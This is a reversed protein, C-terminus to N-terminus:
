DCPRTAGSELDVRFCQREGTECDEVMLSAEAFDPPHHTELFTLAADEFSTAAVRQGRSPADDVGHVSFARDAATTATQM